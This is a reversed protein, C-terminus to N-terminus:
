ARSKSFLSLIFVMQRSWVLCNDSLNQRNILGLIVCVGWLSLFNAMM